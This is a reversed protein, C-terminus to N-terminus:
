CGALTDGFSWGLHCGLSVFFWKHAEIKIVGTRSIIRFLFEGLCSILTYSPMLSLLNPKPIPLRFYVFLNRYSGRGGSKKLQANISDSRTTAEVRDLTLVLSSTVRVSFPRFHSSVSHPKKERHGLRMGSTPSEIPRSLLDAWKSPFDPKSWHWLIWSRRRGRSRRHRM